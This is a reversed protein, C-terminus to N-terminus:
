TLVTPRITYKVPYSTIMFKVSLDTHWCGDCQEVDLYFNSIFSETTCRVLGFCETNYMKATCTTSSPLSLEKHIEMVLVILACLHISRCFTDSIGLFRTNVDVHAMGAAKAQAVCTGIVITKYCIISSDFVLTPPIVTDEKGPKFLLLITVM